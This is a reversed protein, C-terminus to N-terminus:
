KFIGPTVSFSFVAERVPVMGLHESSEHKGRYITGTYTCKNDRLFEDIEDVSVKDATLMVKADPNYFYKGKLSDPIMLVPTNEWSAYPEKNTIVLGYGDDSCAVVLVEVNQYLLKFRIVINFNNYVFGEDKGMFKAGQNMTIKMTDRFM